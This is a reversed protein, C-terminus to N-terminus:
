SLPDLRTAVGRGLGTRPQRPRPRRPLPPPTPAPPTPATTTKAAEVRGHRPPVALRLVDALTGATRDAVARALEAVEPTLVREASVVGALSALRGVHESTEARELLWGDVLRGAFRVRVRVGPQAQDSLSAPVAYDFLRDLHALGSDVVVRAVPTGAALPPPGAPPKRSRARPAPDKVSASTVTPPGDGDLALPLVEDTVSPLSPPRVSM